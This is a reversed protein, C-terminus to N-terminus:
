REANRIERWVRQVYGKSCGIEDAVTQADPRGYQAAVLEAIGRNRKLGGHPVGHRIRTFRVTDIDVGLKDAVQRNSLSRPQALIARTTKSLRM